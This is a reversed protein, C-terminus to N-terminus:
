FVADLLEADFDGAEGKPVEAPLSVQLSDTEPNWEAVAQASYFPLPWWVTLPAYVSKASKPLPPFSIRLCEDSVEVRFQKLTPVHRDLDPMRIQTICRRGALLELTQAEALGGAQEDPNEAERAAKNKMTGRIKEKWANVRYIPLDLASIQPATAYNAHDEILPGWKASFGDFPESDALSYYTCFDPRKLGRDDTNVSSQRADKSEGPMPASGVEQIQSANKKRIRQLQVVNGKYKMKPLKYRQDLQVKYKQCISAICLNVVTERFAPTKSCEMVTEPNAVLDYTVCPENKKDFDEIPTGVSLPVRVGEEGDAETLSQVHPAEIHENATINIFVKMGSQMDFTKVVFGPDPRVLIGGEADVKNLQTTETPMGEALMQEYSQLYQEIDGGGALLEALGEPMEGGGPMGPMGGEMGFGANDQGLREGVKYLEDM